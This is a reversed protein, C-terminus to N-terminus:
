ITKPEYSIPNIRHNIHAPLPRSTGPPTYRSTGSCFTFVPPPHGPSNQPVPVCSFSFDVKFYLTMCTTTNAYHCRASSTLSKSFYCVHPVNKTAESGPIFHPTKDVRKMCILTMKCSQLSKLDPPSLFSVLKLSTIALATYRKFLFLLTTFM